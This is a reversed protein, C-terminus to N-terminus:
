FPITQRLGFLERLVDNVLGENRFLDDRHRGGRGLVSFAAHLRHIAVRKELASQGGREAHHGSLDTGSIRVRNASLFHDPYELYGPDGRLKRFDPLTRSDSGLVRRLDRFPSYEKFALSIGLMPLYRYVIFYLLGPTFSTCIVTGGCELESESGHARKPLLRNISKSTVTEM